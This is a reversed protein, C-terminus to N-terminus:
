FYYVYALEHHHHNIINFPGNRARLSNIVLGLIPGRCYLILNYDRPAWATWNNGRVLLYCRGAM